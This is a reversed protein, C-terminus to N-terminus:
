RVGLGTRAYRLFHHSAGVTNANIPSFVFLFPANLPPQSHLFRLSPDTLTESGRFLSNPDLTIETFLLLRGETTM